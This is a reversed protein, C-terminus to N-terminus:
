LLKNYILAFLWTLAFGDIFSYVAGLFAGFISTKYGLFGYIQILLNSYGPAYDSFLLAAITIVFVCVATVIGGALGLKVPHLKLFKVM